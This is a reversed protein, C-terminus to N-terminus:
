RRYVADPRGKAVLEQDLLSTFEQFLPDTPSTPLRHGDEQRTQMLREALVQLQVHQGSWLTEVLEQIERDPESSHLIKKWREPDNRHQARVRADQDALEQAIEVPDSLSPEDAGPRSSILSYLEQDLIVERAQARAQNILTVKTLYDPATGHTKRYQEVLPGQGPVAEDILTEIRATQEALYAQRQEPTWNEPMGIDTTWVREVVAAIPEQTLVQM